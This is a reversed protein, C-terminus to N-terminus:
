RYNTKHFHCLFYDNSIEGIIFGALVSDVFLGYCTLKQFLDAFCFLRRFAHDEALLCGNNDTVAVYNKRADRWSEVCSLLKDQNCKDALDLNLFELDNKEFIRAKSRLREFKAGNMTSVEKTCFVYDFSDRDEVVRFTDEILERTSVEPVLKLEPKSGQKGVYELLESITNNRESTGHFSYVTEDTRIDTFRTVLNGKLNSLITDGNSNWLWLSTFNFDSYPPHGSTFTEVDKQDSLELKKFFPFLPIM